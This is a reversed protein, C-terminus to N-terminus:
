VCRDLTALKMFGAAHDLPQGLRQMCRYAHAGAPKPARRHRYLRAATACDRGGGQDPPAHLRLRNCVPKDGTARIPWLSPGWHERLSHALHDQWAVTYEAGLICANRRSTHQVTARDAYLFCKAIATSSLGKDRRSAFQVLKKFLIWQVFDRCISQHEFRVQASDRRQTDALDRDIAEHDGIMPRLSRRRIVFPSWNIAARM